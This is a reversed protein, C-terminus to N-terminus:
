TCDPESGYDIVMWNDNIMVFWVTEAMQDSSAGSFTNNLCAIEAEGDRDLDATWMYEAPRNIKLKNIPINEPTFFVGLISNPDINAPSAFIYTPNSSVCGYEWALKMNVIHLSAEVPGNDTIFWVPIRNKLTHILSGIGKIESDEADYASLPPGYGISAPTGSNRYVYNFFYRANEPIQILYRTEPNGSADKHVSPDQTVFPAGGLFIFNKNTLLTSETRTLYDYSEDEENIQPKPRKFSSSPDLKMGDSLDDQYEVIAQYALEMMPLSLVSDKSHDANEIYRLSDRFAFARKAADYVKNFPPFTYQAITSDDYTPRYGVQINLPKTEGEGENVEAIEDTALTDADTTTESETSPKCNYLLAICALACIRSTLKMTLTDPYTLFLFERLFL